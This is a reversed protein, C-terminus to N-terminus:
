KGCVFTCTSLITNTFQLFLKHHTSRKDIEIPIQSAKVNTRILSIDLNDLKSNSLYFHNISTSKYKHETVRLGNLFENTCFFYKMLKM